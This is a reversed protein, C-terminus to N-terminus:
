RVPLRQAAEVVLSVIRSLCEGLAQGMAAALAETTETEALRSAAVEGSFLIMEESGTEVEVWLAVEAYWGDPRCVQEFRNLRGNVILDAETTLRSTTLRDFFGSAQFAQVLHQHVLKVPPDLWLQNPNHKLSLSSTQYLINARALPEPAKLPPLALTLDLPKAPRELSPPLFDLRYYTPAPASACGALLLTATALGLLRKM